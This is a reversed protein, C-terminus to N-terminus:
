AYRGSVFLKDFLNPKKIKDKKDLYYSKRKYFYGGISKTLNKM